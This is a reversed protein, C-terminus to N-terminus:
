IYKLVGVKRNGVSCGMRKNHQLVKHPPQIHDTGRECPVTPLDATHSQSLEKDYESVLQTVNFEIECALRHVNHEEMLLM